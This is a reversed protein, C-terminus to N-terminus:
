NTNALATTTRLRIVAAREAKHAAHLTAGNATAVESSGVSISTAITAANNAVIISLLHSTAVVFPITSCWIQAVAGTPNIRAHSSAVSYKRKM